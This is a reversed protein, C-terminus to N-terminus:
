RIFTAQYKSNKGNMDEITDIVYLGVAATAATVGIVKAAEAVGAVPNLTTAGKVVGAIVASGIVMPNKVMNTAGEVAKAIRKSTKNTM